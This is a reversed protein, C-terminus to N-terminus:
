AAPAGGLFAMAGQNGCVGGVGGGLSRARARADGGGATLFCHSLRASCSRSYRVRKPGGGKAPM